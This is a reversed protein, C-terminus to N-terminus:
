FQLLLYFYKLIYKKIKEFDNKFNAYWIISFM